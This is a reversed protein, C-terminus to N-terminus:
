PAIVDSGEIISQEITFYSYPVYKKLRLIQLYRAPNGSLKQIIKTIRYTDVEGYIDVEIPDGLQLQPTGVVEIEQATGYEKFDNLLITAKSNADGLNQFYPNSISMIKEGYKDISDQDRVEVSIIEVITAIEGWITIDRVYLDTTGTNTFTMKVATALEDFDTLTIDTSNALGSGDEATNVSYSSTGGLYTPTDFNAVPDSFTAWVEVSQGIQVLTSESSTYIEANAQIARRASEIKVINIVDDEARTTAALISDDTSFSWAIDESFNQRNKFRLMGAEDMSLSGAEATVLDNVIKGLTEGAPAYFFGITNFGVDFVYQDSLLGADEFLQALIEDTRVNQMILSQDPTSNLLTALFDVCHFSVLKEKEQVQPSKDNFGVFVPITQNGFGASLRIPRAPLMYGDAPSGSGDNFYGDTNEMVIDAMATSVSSVLDEERQWEMTYIRDSHDIYQYRDWEQVIDSDGRIFDGGGIESVGVTFFEITDDYQRDFSITMNWALDQIIEQAKGEIYPNEQM